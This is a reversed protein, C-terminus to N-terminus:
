LVLRGRIQTKNIAGALTAQFEMGPLFRNGKDIASIDAVDPTIITFDSIIGNVDRARILIERMDAEIQAIGDNTFPIKDSNVLSFLIKEQMRAQIWDAGRIVDVFDGDPMNGFQTINLANVEIYINGNNNTINNQETTTLDDRTPGALTQYAWNTSGPEKPLQKGAVAAALHDDSDESYWLMTRFQGANVLDELVNGATAAKVAADSSTALYIKVRAQIFAAIANIDAEDRTETILGYWDDDIAEIATLATVYNGSDAAELQGIKIEPPRVEQGFANRAMEIEVDGATFDAEVESIDAYTRIREGATFRDSDGLLLPTGFGKQSPVKTERTIQVDIIQNLGAM